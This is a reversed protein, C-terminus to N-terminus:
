GLLPSRFGRPKRTLVACDVEPLVKEATNGIVFGPVGTRGVSGMVLLDIGGAQLTALIARSARGHVLHRRLRQDTLGTAELASELYGAHRNLAAGLLPTDQPDGPLSDGALGEGFLKWAHLVHLAAGDARAIAAADALLELALAHDEPASPDPNVAVLVGRLRPPTDPQEIWVPCPCQRLLQRALPGHRLRSGSEPTAAKVLVDHGGVVAAAVAIRQVIGTEVRHQALLGGARAEAALAAVAAGLAALQRRAEAHLAEAAPGYVDLDPAEPEAVGLVTLEAGPASALRLVRALAQRAAAPDTVLLLPRRFAVM